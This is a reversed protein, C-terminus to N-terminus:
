KKNSRNLMAYSSTKCVLVNISTCPVFICVYRQRGRENWRKRVTEYLGHCFDEKNLLEHSSKDRIHTFKNLNCVSIDNVNYFVDNYIFKNYTIFLNQVTDSHIINLLIDDISRYITISISRLKQNWRFWWIVNKEFFVIMAM